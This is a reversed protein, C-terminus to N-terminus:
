RRRSRRKRSRPSRRPSKVMSPSFNEIHKKLKIIDDEIPKRTSRKNPAILEHLKNGLTHSVKHLHTKELIAREVQEILPIYKEKSERLLKVARTTKARNLQNRNLERAEAVLADHREELQSLYDNLQEIDNMTNYAIDHYQNASTIHDNITNPTLNTIPSGIIPSPTRRAGTNKSWCNFLGKATKNRRKCHRRTKHKKAM